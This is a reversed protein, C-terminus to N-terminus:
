GEKSFHIRVWDVQEQTDPVKCGRSDAIQNFVREPDFGMLIMAAAALMSSRGIGQRCHIIISKGMLLDNRITRAIELAMSISSPVGRDRIPYALYQIKKESCLREEDQLGLEEVEDHELLSIVIDVGSSQLSLIEDELWDGGRPRPIIGLRGSDVGKIWYIDVKM